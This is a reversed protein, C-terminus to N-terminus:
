SLKYQIHCYRAKDLRNREKKQTYACVATHLEVNLSLRPFFSWSGSFLATGDVQVHM